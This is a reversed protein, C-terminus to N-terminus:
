IECQLYPFAPALCTLSTSYNKKVLDSLIFFTGLIKRKYKLIYFSLFLTAEPLVLTSAKVKSGTQM